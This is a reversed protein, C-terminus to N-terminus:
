RYINKRHGIKLITIKNKSYDFIVRHEGIRFRYQGIKEDTLKTAHVALNKQNSFWKLKNIIRRATSLELKDLDDIASQKFILKYAM